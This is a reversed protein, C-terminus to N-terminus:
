AFSGSRCRKGYSGGTDSFLFGLGQPQFDGWGENHSLRNARGRIAGKYHGPQWSQRFVDVTISTESAFVGGLRNESIENEVLTADTRDAIRVGFGNQCITNSELVATAGDIVFIGGASNQVVSCNAITVRSRGLAMIGCGCNRITCEGISVEAVGGVAIGGPKREDHERPALVNRELTVRVNGRIHIGAGLTVFENDRVCVSGHGGIELAGDIRFGEITVEIQEKAQVRISPGRKQQVVQTRDKGEGQLTMSKDIRIRECYSGAGVRILEGDQAAAVAERITSHDSPVALM